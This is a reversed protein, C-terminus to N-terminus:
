LVINIYGEKILAKITEPDAKSLKIKKGVEGQIAGNGVIITFIKQVEYVTEANFDPSGLTIDQVESLDIVAPAETLDEVEVEAPETSTAEFDEVEELAVDKTVKSEKKTFAM